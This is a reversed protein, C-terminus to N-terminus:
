DHHPIKSGNTPPNPASFQSELAALLTAAVQEADSGPKLKRWAGIKFRLSHRHHRFNVQIQIEDAM